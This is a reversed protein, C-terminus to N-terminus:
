VAESAIILQREVAARMVLDDRFRELSYGSTWQRIKSAALVIDELYIKPDRQTM